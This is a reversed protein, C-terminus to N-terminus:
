EAREDSCKARPAYELEAREGPVRRDGHREGQRRAPTDDGAVDVLLRGRDRAPVGLLGPDRVSDIVPEARPEFRDGLEQFLLKTGFRLDEVLEDPLESHTM